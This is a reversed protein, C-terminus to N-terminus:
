KPNPYTTVLNFAGNAEGYDNAVTKGDTLNQCPVIFDAHYHEDHRVWPKKTSFSMAARLQGGKSTKFLLKQLENDFIVRRIKIGHKDAAGKIALLHEAMAEFDLTYAEFRGQADFEVAYGFKNFPGTPLLVSRGEADMVPVFFDVSLGNQHTKHPKFRGGGAWGTEGYVYRKGPATRELSRFADVVVAHVTSHLYNRGVLVGVSSYAQFNEGSSPLQWGNELRGKEPTGYCISELEASCVGTAILGLCLTLPVIKKM